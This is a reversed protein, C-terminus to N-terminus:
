EDIYLFLITIVNKLGQMYKYCHFIKRNQRCMCGM